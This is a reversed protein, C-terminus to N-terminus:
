SILDLEEQVRRHERQAHAAGSADGTSALLDILLEWAPDTFRDLAIARRAADVAAGQRGTRRLDHALRTAAGAALLRLREREEVVWEAPGEEPLLDGTYRALAAHRATITVDDAQPGSAAAARLLDDAFRHVDVESGAPLLLRYASDRRVLVQAGPLDNAELLRRVASVAVQLRRGGTLLDTGPWLAEVLRERHQDEDSHLALLRLLSRARPRLPGLDVPQDGITLAFGGFCRVRVPGSADRSGSTPRAAPRGTPMPPSVSPVLLHRAVVDVIRVSRASEPRPPGGALLDIVGPVQMARAGQVVRAVAAPEVGPHLYASTSATDTPHCTRLLADIWLAVVPAGVGRFRAAADGYARRATEQDAAVAATAVQLIAAGWPDDLRDCARVADACAQRRWASRGAAEEGRVLTAERLGRALRAIWPQGVDDARAAIEILAAAAPHPVEATPDLLLDVVVTALDVVLAVVSDDPGVRPRDGDADEAQADAALRLRTRAGGLDGALLRILADVLYDAATGSALADTAAGPGSDSPLRMTAERLRASWHATAPRIDLSFWGSTSAAGAWLQAVSRERRCIARFGPEDLLNEASRFARIAPELAGSRLQRRAQALSLWPDQAVVSPPLPLHRGDGDVPDGAGRDGSLPGIRVLRAVTAWDEAQVAARVAGRVAGAQELLRASRRYWGRAADPGESQVLSWQLHSRLVEHYHYTEGDDDSVTFLQQQELEDLIVASGRIGLLGDCLDATLPELGCTRRLFNQREPTLGALVNSALYSRILKSRGGLEEVARHREAAPRHATSLHFLQLGAAWGGTRRALAAASEPSLPEGFHSLFLEEVEWSRWRLDEATVEVLGGSVRLRPVNVEPTRRSGVLIRLWPPRLAILQAVLHEAPGATIEQLDDLVLVLRGAHDVDTAGTRGTPPTPPRIPLSALLHPLSADAVPMSLADTLVRALHALFTAGDRDNGDVRYWAVPRPDAAAIQALLTTKGSGAPAVVLGLGVDGSRFPKLLRPRVLGSGDPRRLKETLVINNSVTM